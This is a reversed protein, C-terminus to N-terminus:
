KFDEVYVPFVPAYGQHVTEPIAHSIIGSGGLGHGTFLATIQLNKPTLLAATQALMIPNKFPKGSHVATSGHRGFRIFPLYFCQNNKWELQQPACPALTLLTNAMTHVNPSYEEFEKICFKGQGTSADKGFGFTGIDNLLLQMTDISLKNLDILIYADLYRPQDDTSFYWLEDVCFPAFGDTGTTGSQRNISNHTHKRTEWTKIAICENGDFWTSLPEGLFTLPVWNKKKILKRKSLDLKERCLYKAPCDPRPIYGSPFFDSVVTFPNSDTYVNLLEKLKTEGFREKLAWCIQGFLTDGKPPTVFASLTELKIRFLKM